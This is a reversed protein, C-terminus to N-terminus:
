HSYTKERCKEWVQGPFVPRQLGNRKIYPSTSGHQYIDNGSRTGVEHLNRWDDLHQILSHFLTAREPIAQDVRALMIIRAHGSVEESLKTYRLRVHVKIYTRAGLCLLSGGDHHSILVHQKLARA